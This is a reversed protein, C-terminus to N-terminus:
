LLKLYLFIWLLKTLSWTSFYMIVVEVVSGRFDEMLWIMLGMEEFYGCGVFTDELLSRCAVRVRFLNVSWVNEGKGELSILMMMRGSWGTSSRYNPFIEGRPVISTLGGGGDIRGNELRNNELDHSVIPFRVSANSAHASPSCTSTVNGTVTGIQRPGPVTLFNTRDYYSVYKGVRREINSRPYIPSSLRLCARHDRPTTGPDLPPRQYRTRVCQEGGRRKRKWGRWRWRESGGRNDEEGEANEVEEGCNEEREREKEEGEKEEEKEEDMEYM